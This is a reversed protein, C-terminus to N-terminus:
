INCLTLAGVGGCVFIEDGDVQDLVLGGVGGVMSPELIRTRKAILALLGTKWDRAKVEV